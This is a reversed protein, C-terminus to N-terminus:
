RVGSGIIRQTMRPAWYPQWGAAEEAAGSITPTFRRQRFLALPDSHLQRIETPNIARNYLYTPGLQGRLKTNGSVNGIAFTDALAGVSGSTLTIDIQGDAWGLFPGGNGELTIGLLHWEGDTITATGTTYEDNSGDDIKYLANTGSNRIYWGTAISTGM